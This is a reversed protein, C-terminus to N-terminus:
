ESAAAAKGRIILDEPGRVCEAIDIKRWFFVDNFKFKKWILM